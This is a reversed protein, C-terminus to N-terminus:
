RGQQVAVLRDHKAAVINPLVTLWRSDPQRGAAWAVLAAPLNAGALHSFPYGGGFRPNMEVVYPQGDSVFVDCDLNGIHGLHRGLTEGLKQLQDDDITIARDTEGARMALKQKVFTTVYRGDLDNIVDLGYEPGPMHQQVLVTRAPDEASMEAICTRRIRIQTLRYALELEDDDAPYEIGISASGWRPKVVVPFTIEGSSLAARAQALSLFTRPAPVGWRRLVEHTAWKDSCTAIVDSDSVVPITGVNSFQARRGALVPLELDNLPILLRIRHKDCLAVLHDVYDPQRVPPVKLAVDAEQLASALPNADTAFIRSTGPLAERFYRLLYNRRGACTFIINM